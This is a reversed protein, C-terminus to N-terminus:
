GCTQVGDQTGAFGVQALGVLLVAAAIWGGSWVRRQLM